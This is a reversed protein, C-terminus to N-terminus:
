SATVIRKGDPSFAASTVADEHGVLPAGIQEGTEADWLRATKDVSATVIRKGDPSFAASLVAGEHGVLPAGIQKGTAADWLRATKDLSATVIRKGDPSFAASCVADEHGVLPAGIQKGTAADWLRATKDGSATVIRKGDPSFAASFVAGEHGFLILRERLAFWALNLQLEAEPVYPRAIGATDDPLGELALLLATGADGATRRQRALDALFRSQTTQAEALKTDARDKEAAVRKEAATARDRESAADKWQWGAFVGIVAMLLAAAIAGLTVRRQFKLQREKVARDFAISRQVYATVEASLDERRNPLWEEARALDLGTLLAKDAHGM